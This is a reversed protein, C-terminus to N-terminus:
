KRRITPGQSPCTASGILIPNTTPNSYIKITHTGGGAYELWVGYTTNAVALTTPSIPYGQPNASSCELELQGSANIAFAASDVGPTGVFVPSSTSTVNTGVNVNVYATVTLSEAPVSEYAEGGSAMNYCIGRSGAGAAYTTGNTTTNSYSPLSGATCVTFASANDLTWQNIGMGHTGANLITTTLTTGNTSSEFDSFSSVLDGTPLTGAVASKYLAVSSLVDATAATTGLATFPSQAGNVIYETWGEANGSTQPADTLTTWVDGPAFGNLASTSNLAAGIALDTQSSLKAGSFWYAGIGSNDQYGDCGDFPASAAM